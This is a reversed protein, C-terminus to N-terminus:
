NKAQALASALSQVFAQSTDTAGSVGDVQASQAQIAESTLAPMAQSNIYRSTSRDNPYQLFRVDAIAGNQIVAEVQVTGYYANAPSGTYTGNAYQGQPQPTPAPAPPNATQSQTAAPTTQTSAPATNQPPASAAPTQNVAVTAGSSQAGSNQSSAPLTTALSSSQQANAAYNYFVYLSSAAVFGLSLFVKKWSSVTKPAAPAAAFFAQELDQPSWGGQTLSRTIEAKPVGSALLKRIYTILEPTIM